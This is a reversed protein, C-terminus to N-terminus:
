QAIGKDSGAPNIDSLGARCGMQKALDLELAAVVRLIVKLGLLDKDTALIAGLHSGM